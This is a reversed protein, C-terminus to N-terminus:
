GLDGSCYFTASQELFTANRFKLQTSEAQNLYGLGVTPGSVWIEGAVGIPSLAGHKGVVVMKLTPLPRGIPVTGVKPLSELDVPNVAVIGTTESQGYMNAFASKQGLTVAWDRPVSVPLPESAALALRISNARWGQEANEAALRDICMRWHSPVLDVVTVGA